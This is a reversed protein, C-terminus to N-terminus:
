SHRSKTQIVKSRKKAASRRPSEPAAREDIWAFAHVSAHVSDKGNVSGQHKDMWDDIMQLFEGGQDDIFRRFLPLHERSFHIQNSTRQFLPPRLRKRSQMNNTLTSLSRSVEECGYWLPILGTRPTKAMRTKPLFKKGRPEVLELAMLLEITGAPDTHGCDVALSHLSLPGDIPIPAPLGADDTYRESRHWLTLCQGARELPRVGGAEIAPSSRGVSANALAKQITKASLGCESFFDLLSALAHEAVLLEQAQTNDLSKAPM